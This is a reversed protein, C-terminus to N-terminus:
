WLSINYGHEQSNYIITREGERERKSDREIKEQCLLWEGAIIPNINVEHAAVDSSIFHSIATNKKKTKTM